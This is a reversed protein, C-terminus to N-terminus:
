TRRKMGRSETAFWSPSVRGAAWESLQRMSRRSRDITESATHADGAIGRAIELVERDVWEAVSVDRRGLVLRLSIIASDTQRIAAFFAETNPHTATRDAGEVLLVRVARDIEVVAAARRSRREALASALAVGFTALGGIVAGILGSLFGALDFLETNGLEVAGERAPRVLGSLRGEAVFAISNITGQRV